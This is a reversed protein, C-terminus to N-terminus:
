VWHDALAWYGKADHVRLRKYNGIELDERWRSPSMWTVLYQGSRTKGQADVIEIETRVKVAPTGNSWVDSKRAQALLSESDVTKEEGLCFGGSTLAVVFAFFLYRRADKGM